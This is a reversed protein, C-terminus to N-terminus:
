LVIYDIDIDIDIDIQIGECMDCTCASQVAPM